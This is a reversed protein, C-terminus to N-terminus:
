SKISAMASRPPVHLPSLNPSNSTALVVCSLGPRHHDELVVTEVHRMRNRHTGERGIWGISGKKPKQDFRALRISQPSVTAQHYILNCGNWFCSDPRVNATESVLFHNPQITGKQDEQSNGSGGLVFFQPRWSRQWHAGVDFIPDAAAGRRPLDAENCRAPESTVLAALPLADADSRETCVSVRFRRPPFSARRRRSNRKVQFERSSRRM